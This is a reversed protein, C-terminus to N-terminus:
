ALHIFGLEFKIYKKMDNFSGSSGLPWLMVSKTHNPPGLLYWKDNLKSLCFITAARSM